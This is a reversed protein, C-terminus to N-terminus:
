GIQAEQVDLPVELWAPGWRPTIMERWAMGLCLGATNDGVPMCFKTITQVVPLMKVEQGGRTREGKAQWERKVQGAIFLVPLGELYATACATVANTSGPGSTVMCVAPAMSYHADACAMYGAGYESMTPIFEIESRVLSDFLHMAGGGVVGYIRQAICEFLSVLPVYAPSILTCIILEVVLL